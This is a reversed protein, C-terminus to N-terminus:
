KFPASLEDRHPLNDNNWRKAIEDKRMDFVQKTKLGEVHGDCFVANWRGTHRRRIGIAGRKDSGSLGGEHQLNLEFLLSERGFGRQLNDAYGWCAPRDDFDGWLTADTITVMDSPAVVESERRLQLHEPLTLAQPRDWVHVGGLGREVRGWGSGNYGYSGWVDGSHVGPLRAYAPCVDIGPAPFRYKTNQWRTGTYRELRQHWFREPQWADDSMSSPPFVGFDDVYMSLGLGWQRLNNRCITSYASQRAKSLTPLLLSALIGIVAIVVLLEILTFARRMPAPTLNRTSGTRNMGRSAQRAVWDSDAGTEDRSQFVKKNM